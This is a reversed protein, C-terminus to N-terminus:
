GTSVVQMAPDMGKFVAYLDARYSGMAIRVIRM